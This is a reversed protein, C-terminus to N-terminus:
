CAQLLLLCNQKEDSSEATEFGALFVLHHCKLNTSILFFDTDFPVSFYSEIWFYCEREAWISNLFGWLSKQLTPSCHHLNKQKSKYFLLRLNVGMDLIQVAKLEKQFMFCDNSHGPLCLFLVFVHLNGM